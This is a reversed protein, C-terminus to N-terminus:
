QGMRAESIDGGGEFSIDGMLATAVGDADNSTLRRWGMQM